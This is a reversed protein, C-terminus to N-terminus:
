QYSPLLNYEIDVIKNDKIKNPIKVEEAKFRPEPEAFIINM